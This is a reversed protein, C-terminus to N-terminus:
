KEIIFISITICFGHWLIGSHGHGRTGDNLDGRERDSAEQAGQAVIVQRNEETLPVSCCSGATLFSSRELFPSCHLLWLSQPCRAVSFPCVIPAPSCLGALAQPSDLGLSRASQVSVCVGCIVPSSSLSEPCLPFSCISAQLRASYSGERGFSLLCTM